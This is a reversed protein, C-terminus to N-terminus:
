SSVAVPLRYTHPDDIADLLYMALDARRTTSGVPATAGLSVRPTGAPGDVLRTPRVATWRLESAALLEEMRAMDDYTGRMLRYLLRGALRTGPGASAPVEIGASSIVLVRSGPASATILAEASRSYITAPGRGTAGLASIVVDHGRLATLAAPDTPDAVITAVAAPFASQEISRVGSSADAAPHVPRMTSRTEVTPRSTPQSGPRIVATVDHGRTLAQRVLIRGTRGTAGLIAITAM